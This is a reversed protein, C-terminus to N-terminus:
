FFKVIVTIVLWGDKEEVAHAEIQKASYQRNNWEGHFAFNCRFGTRGHKAGFREGREITAIVEEYSSLLGDVTLPGFDATGPPYRRVSTPSSHLTIPARSLVGNHSRSICKSSAPSPFM